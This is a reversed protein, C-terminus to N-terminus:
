GPAPRPRHHCSSRGSGARDKEAHARNQPSWRSSHDSPVTSALPPVPTLAAERLHPARHRQGASRMSLSSFETFHIEQKSSLDGSQKLLTSCTMGCDKPKNLFLKVSLFM